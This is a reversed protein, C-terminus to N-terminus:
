PVKTKNNYAQSVVVRVYAILTSSEKNEMKTKSIIIM